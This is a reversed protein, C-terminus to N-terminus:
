AKKVKYFTVNEGNFFDGEPLINERIEIISLAYKEIITKIKDTNFYHTWFRYTQINANEDIVFYQNLAVKEEQYYFSESFTLYPTPKWFGDIESVEWNKNHMAAVKNEINKDNLVDFVFTGNPKLAKGIKQLLIEREEPLLVGFDTYIMVILDFQNEYDIELYNQNIYKIELQKESVQQKAYEISKESFDIGTINHGKKAFQECYLGPGCGLDLINLKRGQATELIWNATKEITSQKRSAIDIDPNIHLNLLQKSIYEDTWMIDTGVEYLKPNKSASIIKQINM